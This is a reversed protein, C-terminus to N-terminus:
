QIYIAVGQSHKLDFICDSFFIGGTSHILQLFSCPYSTLLLVSAACPRAQPQGVKILIRGKLLYSSIM